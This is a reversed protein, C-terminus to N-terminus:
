GPGCTIGEVKLVPHLEIGNPAVGTQGHLVDFFGVGTITASGRLRRFSSRPPTGCAAIFDRRATEMEARKVSGIAGSCAVDPFEAIMTKAADGPESIVVHFDEDEEHTASVLAAQLTYTTTEVGAIRPMSFGIHAPAPIARLADVTTAQPTFNVSGAASDSLTKVAWREAGCQQGAASPAPQPAAPPAPAAAEWPFPPGANPRSVLGEPGNIWTTSGDTFATWNDAKRWVLLGGTTQQLGDGNEPNHHEDELCDGVIGPILDHLAKFGLTFTCTAQATAAAPASPQWALLAALQLAIIFFRAASRRM